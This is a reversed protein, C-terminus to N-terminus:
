NVKLKYLTNKRNLHNVTYMVDNSFHFRTKLSGLADIKAITQKSMNGAPGISVEVLNENETFYIRLPNKKSLTKFPLISSLSEANIIEIQRKPVAVNWEINGKSNMSVVTLDEFANRTIETEDQVDNSNRYIPDANYSEFIVKFKGDNTRNIERLFIDDANIKILDGSTEGYNPLTDYITVAYVGFYTDFFTGVIKFNKGDPSFFKGDTMSKGVMNPCVIYPKSISDKYILVEYNSGFTSKLPDTKLLVYLQGNNNIAYDEVKNRFTVKREWIKELNRDLIHFQVRESDSVIELESHKLMENEKFSALDAYSYAFLYKSSDPSPKEIHVDKYYCNITNPITRNQPHMNPIKNITGRALPQNRFITQMTGSFTVGYPDFEIVYYSYLYDTKDMTRFAMFFKDKLQIIGGLNKSNALQYVLVTSKISIPSLNKDYRQFTFENNDNTNIIVTSQDKLTIMGVFVDNKLLTSHISKIIKPGKAQSFSSLHYLLALLILFSKKM